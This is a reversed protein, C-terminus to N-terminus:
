DALPHHHSSHVIAVDNSSTEDVPTVTTFFSGMVWADLELWLVHV